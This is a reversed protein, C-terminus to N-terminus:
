TWSKFTIVPQKEKDETIPFQTDKLKIHKKPCFLCNLSMLKARPFQKVM